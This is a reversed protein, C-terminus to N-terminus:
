KELAKAFKPARMWPSYDAPAITCLILMTLVYVAGGLLVAFLTAAPLSVRASLFLYGGRAAGCCVLGGALPRSFIAVLNTNADIAKTLVACGGFFVILYCALTGVPAGKINVSPVSVLLYNTVLKVTGGILMLWLPAYVRGVAQLMSSIPTAVAVFIVAIGLTQLLGAAVAVEAPNDGFLLMLVPRAMVFIGLGAPVSVAATTFLVTQVADRLKARQRKAHLASIMPLASVGLSATIAPVMNFVTVALGTYSGYLFNALEKQPIADLMAGPHSAILAGINTQAALRLRNMVSVLDILSTLNIVLAGLCVPLAYALLRRALSFFGEASPSAKAPPQKKLAYRIMIFMCGAATSLSVACIAAAAAKPAIVAQAQQATQVAVGFVMKDTEYQRWGDSVCAQAFTIGAALKVLAETVQSFATPRMNRMGEFHGRFVASVCAFFIAPAIARVAGLADPNGVAAVFLPAGFFIVAALVFGILPFCVAATTLIRQTLAKQGLAASQATLKSVAVPFGAVSLAYIPNFFGYATMFYGMGGGGLIRTLPLKFLAGIVKVTVAAAMLLAAGGLFSQGREKM